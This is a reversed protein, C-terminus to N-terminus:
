GRSSKSELLQDLDSFENAHFTNEAFWKDVLISIAQVGASEDFMAESIPRCTKLVLVSAPSHRLLKEAVPGITASGPRQSATVGLIVLDYANAEDFITRAIDETVISRLNVEPIQKLIHQIGKFPADNVAGTLALHLADLHPPNLEMAVQLALEAHPGGRAAILTHDFKLHFPLGSSPSIVSQIISYLPSLFELLHIGMWGSWSLLDPKENDIVAQLDQWLSSSVVVTSKFRTIADGLSMLRKRVQRATAGRRQRIGWDAIPVVGVLIIEDAFQTAISPRDSRDRGTGIPVMVTKIKRRANNM